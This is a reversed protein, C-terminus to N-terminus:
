ADWSINHKCEQLEIEEDEDDVSGTEGDTVLGDQKDDEIKMGPLVVEVQRHAILQQLGALRAPLVSPNFRSQPESAVIVQCKESNELSHFTIYLIIVINLVKFLM